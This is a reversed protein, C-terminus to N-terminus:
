HSAAASAQQAKVYKMIDIFTATWYIDKNAALYQLLQEHAESSVSLYDGGVGHFTFNAMTGREAAEKAIAILQAGSVDTPTAVGVAYPDLTWMDPPVAGFTSKIAVFEAKILPVYPTGAALVDGCPLAFTRENRGDIARLMVNALRIQAALQTASTHDLDNDATVWEHGPASRSCQHFLTHNALEHGQGAARRWEDMRRALAQSSLVLNFTGKLGYKNLAPLAHDLQSDIADDYSLNIAAKAGGPWTFARPAAASATTANSILLLAGAFIGAVSVTNYRQM